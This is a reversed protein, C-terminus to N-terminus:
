MKQKQERPKIMIELVQQPDDTITILDLDKESITNFELLTQRMWDILSNWFVTGFLVIPM